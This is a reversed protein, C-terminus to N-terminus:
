VRTWQSSSRRLLMNHDVRVRAENNRKQYMNTSKLTINTPLAKDFATVTAVDLPHASYRIWAGPALTHTYARLAAVRRANAVSRM